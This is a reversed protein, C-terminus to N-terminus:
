NAIELIKRVKDINQMSTDQVLYSLSEKNAIFKSIIEAHKGQQTAYVSGTIFGVVETPFLKIQFPKLSSWIAIWVDAEMLNSDEAEWEATCCLLDQFKYSLESKEDDTKYRACINELCEKTKEARGMTDPRNNICLHLIYQRILAYQMKRQSETIYTYFLLLNSGINGLLKISKDSTREETVIFEQLYSTIEKLSDGSRSFSNNQICKVLAQSWLAGQDTVGKLGSIVFLSLINFLLAALLSFMELVTQLLLSKDLTIQETLNCAIALRTQMLKLIENIVDNDGKKHNTEADKVLITKHFFVLRIVERVAGLTNKLISAKTEKAKKEANITIKFDSRAVLEFNFGFSPMYHLDHMWSKNTNKELEVPNVKENEIPFWVLKRDNHKRLDNISLSEGQNVSLSAMPVLCLLLQGECEKCVRTNVIIFPEKTLADWHNSSPKKFTEDVKRKQLQETITVKFFQLTSFDDSNNHPNDTYWSLDNTKDECILKLVDKEPFKFNKYKSFLESITIIRDYLTAPSDPMPTDQSSM